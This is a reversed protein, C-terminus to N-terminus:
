SNGWVNESNREVDHCLVCVPIMTEDEDDPLQDERLQMIYGHVRRGAKEQGTVIASGGPISHMSPPVIGDRGVVDEWAGKM